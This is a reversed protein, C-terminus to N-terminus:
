KRVFWSGLFDLLRSFGESQWNAWGVVPNNTPMTFWQPNSLYYKLGYDEIYAMISHDENRAHDPQSTDQNLHLIHGLTYLMAGMNSNRDASAANTFAAMEYSRADEWKYCNTGIGGQFGSVTCWAYSNTTLGLDTVWLLSYGVIPPESFDTLGITAGPVRTPEVTYFHEMTRQETHSVPKAPILGVPTPVFITFPYSQEDEMKSGLVLWNSATLYPPCQPQANTLM